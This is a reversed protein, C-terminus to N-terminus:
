LGAARALAVALTGIAVTAILPLRLALFACAVIAVREPWGGTVLVPGVIATLVAAPVADLAAAARPPLRGIRSILLYGGIRTLYTLLGALVVVLWVDAM